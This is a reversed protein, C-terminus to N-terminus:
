EERLSEPHMMLATSTKKSPHLVKIVVKNICTICGSVIAKDSVVTSSRPDTRSYVLKNAAGLPRRLQSIKVDTRTSTKPLVPWATRQPNGLFREYEPPGLHFCQECCYM